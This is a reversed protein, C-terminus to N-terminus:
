CQTLLIQLPPTPPSSLTGTATSAAQRSLYMKELQRGTPTLPLQSTKNMLLSAEMPNPLPSPLFSMQPQLTFMMQLQSDVFIKVLVM